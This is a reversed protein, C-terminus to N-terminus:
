VSELAIFKKLRNGIASFYSRCGTILILKRSKTTKKIRRRTRSTATYIVDSRSQGDDGRDVIISCPSQVFNVAGASINEYQKEEFNKEM